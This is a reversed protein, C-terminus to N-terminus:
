KLAPALLVGDCASPPGIGLLACLTPALGSPCVPDRYVGPRIGFGALLLPVATDYVHPSGHTTAHKRPAEETFWLQETVVLVDGSRGPHFGRYILTALDTGGLRGQEVQERPYAAYIGEVGSLARAAAVRVKEPDQGSAAIALDDLYLSFDVYKLVWDQAGFRADLATEAVKEIDTELIRGAHFGMARMEEPIPAVGHDSTLALTVSDLGGPVTRHLFRFFESLQRDTEVACAMVEPSNPGFAHGVYDNPSLNLALLDPTEDQGMGEALVGARATEFVFDNAWPTLTFAKYFAPGPALLGGDVRHPFSSGLRHPVPLALTAPPRRTRRLAEEPLSPTWTQGFRADPVRRANIEEAWAPLAGNKCYFASSVWRGTSDDFWLAADAERGGLLIAARDKLSLSVVKAVGGTAMKLEDGVTTSLLNHPSMPGAKSGPGGGVPATAPDEVCYVSARGPRSFWDNGIIGTKCPYGGTLILAHAPGTLTPFFRHRADSFNAGRERLYRFGGADGGGQGPPLFLGVFRDLYDPRLQDVVIVV